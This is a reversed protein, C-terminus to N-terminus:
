CKCALTTSFCRPQTTSPAAGHKFQGSGGACVKCAGVTGAGSVVGAIGAAPVASADPLGVVGSLAVSANVSTVGSAFQLLTSNDSLPALASAYQGIDVGDMLPLVRTQLAAQLRAMLLVFQIPLFVVDAAASATTAAVSAVARSVAEASQQLAPLRTALNTWSCGASTAAAQLPCGVCM